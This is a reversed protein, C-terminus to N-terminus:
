RSCTDSGFIRQLTDCKPKSIPNGSHVKGGYSIGESKRHISQIVDAITKLQIRKRYWGYDLLFGKDNKTITVVHAGCDSYTLTIEKQQKKNNFANLIKSWEARRDNSAIREKEKPSKLANGLNFPAQKRPTPCSWQTPSYSM